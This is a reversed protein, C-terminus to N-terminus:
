MCMHVHMNFAYLYRSLSLSLSPFEPVRYIYIYVHVCVCITLRIREPADCRVGSAPQAMLDQIVELFLWLLGVESSPFSAPQPEM